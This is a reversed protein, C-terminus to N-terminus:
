QTKERKEKRVEKQESGAESCKEAVGNMANTKNKRQQQFYFVVPRRFPPKSVLTSTNQPFYIFYDYKSIFSKKEKGLLFSKEKNM